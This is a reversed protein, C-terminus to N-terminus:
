LRLKKWDRETESNIRWLDYFGLVDHPFESVGSDDLPSEEDTESDRIVPGHYSSESSSITSPEYSDTNDSDVEIDSDTHM